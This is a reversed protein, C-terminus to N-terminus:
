GDSRRNRRGSSAPQAPACVAGRVSKADVPELPEDSAWVSNASEGEETWQQFLERRRRDDKKSYSM